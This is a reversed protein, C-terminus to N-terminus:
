KVLLWAQNNHEKKVRALLQRAEHQDSLSQYSVVHLGKHRTNMDAQYGLKKLKRVMKRANSEVGFCGGVVHFKGYVNVEAPAEDVVADKLKVTFKKSIGNVESEYEFWSEDSNSIENKLSLSAEEETEFGRYKVSEYVTKESKFPNLSIENLHMNPMWQMKYATLAAVSLLAAAVSYRALKHIFPSSKEEVVSEKKKHVVKLKESRDIPLSQFTTLGFSDSL